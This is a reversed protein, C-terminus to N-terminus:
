ILDRSVADLYLGEAQLTVDDFDVPWDGFAGNEDPVCGNVVTNGDINRTFWNFSVDLSNLKSLAIETQIGRLFVSSHTEIIIKVGRNVADRVIEALKWQARPHLHLEPQEIYVIQNRSASLLAVLIPLVQAVGLGVDAINVLDSAGGRTAQPMRGVRLEVRTDEIKKASVKWTLGLSRLQDGLVALKQNGSEQWMTIISAVYNEYTGPFQNSVETARYTREPNGRLGPVHILRKISELLGSSIDFKMGGSRSLKADTRLYPEIMLFCRERIARFVYGGKVLTDVFNPPFPSGAADAFAKIDEDKVNVNEALELSASSGRTVQESEVKFSGAKNRRYIIRLKTDQHGVSVMFSGALGLDKNRIKSLIQNGATIKINPGDLLLAGPDYSCEITQKWLLIPQMIASKGSSNAGALVTLGSFNLRQPSSISKYGALEIYNIM